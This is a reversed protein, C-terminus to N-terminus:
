QTRRHLWVRGRGEPDEFTLEPECWCDKGTTHPLHPADGPIIAVVLPVGNSLEERRSQVRLRENLSQQVLPDDLLEPQASDSPAPEAPKEHSDPPESSTM